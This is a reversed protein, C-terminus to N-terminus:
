TTPRRISVSDFLMQCRLFSSRSWSKITNGEPLLIRGRAEKWDGWAGGNGITSVSLITGSPKLSYEYHTELPTELSSRARRAAADIKGKAEQLSLGVLPPIRLTALTPSPSSAPAPISTSPVGQSPALTSSPSATSSESPLMNGIVGLVVLGGIGMLAWRLARTGRRRSGYGNLARDPRPPQMQGM